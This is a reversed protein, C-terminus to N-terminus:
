TKTKTQRRSLLIDVLSYKKGREGSIVGQIALYIKIKKTETSSQTMGAGKQGLSRLLCSIIDRLKKRAVLHKEITKPGRCGLALTTEHM